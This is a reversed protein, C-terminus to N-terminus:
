LSQLYLGLRILRRFLRIRESTEKGTVESIYNEFLKEQEPTFSAYLAQEAPDPYKRFPLSEDILYYIQELLDQDSM